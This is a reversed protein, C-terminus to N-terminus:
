TGNPKLLTIRIDSSLTRWTIESPIKILISNISQKLDILMKFYKVM